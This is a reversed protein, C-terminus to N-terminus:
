FGCLLLFHSTPPILALDFLCTQQFLVLLYSKLLSSSPAHRHEVFLINYCTYIVRLLIHYNCVLHSRRQNNYEQFYFYKMGKTKHKKNQILFEITGSVNDEQSAKLIRNFPLPPTSKGLSIQIYLNTYLNTKSKAYDFVIDFVTTKAIYVLNIIFASYLRM